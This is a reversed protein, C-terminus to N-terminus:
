LNDMEKTLYICSYKVLQAEVLPWREVVAM